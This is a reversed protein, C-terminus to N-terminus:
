FFILCCINRFFFEMFYSIFCALLSYLNVPKNWYDIDATLKTVYINNIKFKTKSNYLTILFFPINGNQRKKIPPHHRGGMYFHNIRAGPKNARIILPEILWANKTRRTNFKSRSPTSPSPGLASWRTESTVALRNNRSLSFFAVDANILVNNLILM